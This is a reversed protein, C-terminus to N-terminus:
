WCWCLAAVYSAWQACVAATRPGLCVGGVCRGNALAVMLCKTMRASTVELRQMTLIPAPLYISFNKHGSYQYSHVVNNMCGVMVNNNMRVLGVAPAELQIITQQM